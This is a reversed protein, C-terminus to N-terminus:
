MRCRFESLQLDRSEYEYDCPMVDYTPFAHFLDTVNNGFLISYFIRKNFASM